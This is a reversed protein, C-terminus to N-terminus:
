NIKSVPNDSDDWLSSGSVSQVDDYEKVSQTDLGPDGPRFGGASVDIEMLSSSVSVAKIAPALYVKKEEM